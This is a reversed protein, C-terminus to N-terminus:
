QGVTLPNTREGTPTHITLRYIGDLGRLWIADVETTRITIANIQQKPVTIM